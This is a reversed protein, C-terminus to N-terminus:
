TQPRARTSSVRQRDAYVAAAQTPDDLREFAQGLVAYLNRLRAEHEAGVLAAEHVLRRANDLHVRAEHPASVRLAEEGAALSHALALPAAGAALAHHALVAASDHEVELVELARQHFLRRRADGAETYAVDRIMDNAFAYLSAHGIRGVERVLRASLIEDLAPLGLDPTLNAVVCLREFTLGHDLVTGAALLAFAGPSLRALRSRIVFRVTSPVRVAEGLDHAQDVAFVWHGDPTRRPHLAGRELLDKLTEMLYFPHGHTESFLWQAFDPSPSALLSEVMTVTDRESLPELEIQRVETDHALQSLWLSVDVRQPQVSMSFAESRIGALVLVRAAGARWRRACYSLADLTAGDAWQLDDLFIVLPARDSKSLTYAALAEFLRLHNALFDDQDRPPEDLTAVAARARLQPVLQALPEWWLESISARDFATEELERRFAEVWPQFPIHAGSEFAGGQLVRAGDAEVAALFAAALRSKGIGAEGRLVVIQPRGGVALDYHHSLLGQEVARGAFAAELDSVATVAPDRFDAQALSGPHPARIRDALAQTDPEPQVHLEAALLARCAEFTELAQGREGAAFHARMKRRYAVENLGDLAIWRAATEAAQALEGNAYHIESLRDLILGLRRRWAERQIGVWDDFAPADGLSFGALFDGRHCAFASRLIPLSASADAADRSSRDARALTYAREVIQLDLALDAQLNIALTQHTSAFFISPSRDGPARLATQLRVFTNRLSGHSRESSAEPWFLSALHARPHSGPELALFALLALTKRTPFKVPRADVSAEPPGLLLLRLTSMAFVQASRKDGKLRGKM